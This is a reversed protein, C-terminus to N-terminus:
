HEKYKSTNEFLEPTKVELNIRYGAINCSIDVDTGNEMNVRKDYEINEDKRRLFYYYIAESSAQIYQHISLTLDLMKKNNYESSDCILKFDEEYKKGLKSVFDDFIM